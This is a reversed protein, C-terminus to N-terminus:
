IPYRQPSENMEELKKSNKEDMEKLSNKVEQKLSEIVKMISHKFDIEEVDEPNPHELRGKTQESSGSTINNKLNNSSNKYQCRGM